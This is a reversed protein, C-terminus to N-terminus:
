FQRFYDKEQRITKKVKWYSTAESDFRRAVLDHGCIRLTMGIPFIVLYYVMAILLCSVIWRVPYFLVMWTIYIPQIHQPSILGTGSLLIAASVLIVVVPISETANYNFAAILCLLVTLALAFIRLERKTPTWNIETLAM